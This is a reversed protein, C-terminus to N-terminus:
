TYVSTIVIRWLLNVVRLFVLVRGHFQWESHVTRVGHLIIFFTHMYYRVYAYIIITIITDTHLTRPYEGPDAATTTTLLRLKRDAAFTVSLTIRNGAFVASRKRRRRGPRPFIVCRSISVGLLTIPKYQDFYIFVTKGFFFFLINVSSM